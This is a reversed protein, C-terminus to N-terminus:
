VRIQTWECMYEQLPEAFKLPATHKRRVAYEAYMPNLSFSFRNERGRTKATLFKSTMVGANGVVNFDLGTLWLTMSLRRTDGRYCSLPSSYAYM